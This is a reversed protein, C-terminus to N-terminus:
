PNKTCIYETSSWVYGADICAHKKTGQINDSMGAVLVLLAISGLVTFAFKM